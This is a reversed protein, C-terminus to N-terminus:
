NVVVPEGPGDDVIKFELLATKMLIGKIRNSEKTGIGPVEVVIQNEGAQQVTTGSIGLEDVRNRYVALTNEMTEARKDAAVDDLLVEIKYHSGGALDLGKNISKDIPFIAYLCIVIAAFIIASKLFLNKKM